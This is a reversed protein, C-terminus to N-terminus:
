LISYYENTSQVESVASRETQEVNPPPGWAGLVSCEVAPYRARFFVLRIAYGSTVLGTAGLGLNACDSAVRM